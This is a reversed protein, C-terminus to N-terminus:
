PLSFSISRENNTESSEDIRCYLPSFEEAACSDAVAILQISMSRAPISAYGRFTVSNGPSLIANTSPKWTNNGAVTFPIMYRVGGNDGIYHMSVRFESAYATGQNRVTVLVPVRVRNNATITAAGVRQLATIVLDPRAGRSSIINRETVRLTGRVYQSARYSAVWIDYTGRLAPVGAEEGFTVAPDLTNYNDDNCYWHGRPNNIILVTDGPSDHDSEFFFRLRATNGSWFVRFDPQRTAYGVCDDRHYHDDLDCETRVNVSGGSTVAVEYPDPLFGARLSISGYNPTLTYRLPCDQAQVTSAPLLFAAVLLAIVLIIVVRNPSIKTRSKKLWRRYM